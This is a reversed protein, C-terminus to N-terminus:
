PIIFIYGVLVRGTNTNDSKHKVDFKIEMANRENFQYETGLGYKQTDFHLGNDIFQYNEAFLFFSWDKIEYNLELENRFFNEPRSGKILEQQFTPKYELSFHESLQYGLSLFYRFDHIPKEKGFHFRYDLGPAISFTPNLEVEYETKLAFISKKYHSFNEKLRHEYKGEFALGSKHKHKVFITPRGEWDDVVQSFSSTSFCTLLIVLLYLSFNKM